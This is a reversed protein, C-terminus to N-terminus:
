NRIFLSSSRADLDGGGFVLGGAALADVVEGDGIELRIIHLGTGRRNQHM